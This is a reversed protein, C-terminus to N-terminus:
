GHSAAGKLIQQALSLQDVIAGAADANHEDGASSEALLLAVGFAKGVCVGIEEIEIAGLKPTAKSTVAVSKKAKM